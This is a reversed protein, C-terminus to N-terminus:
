TGFGCCTVACSLLNPQSLSFIIQLAGGGSAELAEDSVEFAFVHEDTQEIEDPNRHMALNGQERDKTYYKLPSTWLQLEM